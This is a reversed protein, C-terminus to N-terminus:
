DAAAPVGADHTALARPLTRGLALWAVGVYALLGAFGPVLLGAAAGWDSTAMFLPVVVAISAATAAVGPAICRLLWSLPRHVERLVLVTQFPVVALSTAAWCAAVGAATDPRVLALLIMPPAFVVLNIMMNIRTKGVALWLCNTPGILLSFGAVLAITRAAGAAAIWPGGLLLTCVREAAVGLGVAIPLGLLVQLETMQGYADALDNLRGQVSALRPLALRFIGSLVMAMAADVLRFGVNTTSVVHEAALFGLVVVFMRYRGVQLLISASNPGAVMWLEGLARREFIARPHWGSGVSMLAFTAMTATAQLAVMAWAGGGVQAVALGAVLGMAQGLLTRCALLRYRRGRLALGSMLGAVASFPLLAALMLVMPVLRPQSAGWAIWPAAVALGAALALAATVTTWLATSRHREELEQRQVLADGFLASLGLDIFLFSALAVAGIGAEVPGIIRSVFLVGFLSFLGSAVVEM